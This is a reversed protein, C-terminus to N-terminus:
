LPGPSPATAPQTAAEAIRALAADLLQRAETDDSKLALASRFHEAAQASRGQNMLYMGFVKHAQEVNPRIAPPMKQSIKLVHAIHDIAEARRNTRLLVLALNDHGTAYDPFLQIATRFSDEAGGVDGRAFQGSGLNNYGVFSRPNVAIARAFLTIDDRWHAAQRFSIVGLTIFTVSCAVAMAPTPYRVVLWALAIAPGLMSIYLYHDAVTSFYQFQFPVLGLVPLVGAVFVLGAAVLQPARKRSILLLMAIGVPVVWTFWLWGDSVIQPPRHGYDVGLNVPLLLKYLYFALSNTAIFPRIWEAVTPIGITIQSAKTWIAAPIMLLFWPALAILSRRLTRQLGFVDLSVAVLPVVIATPKSLMAALFAVIGIVYHVARWTGASPKDPDTARAFLLYQWVAVFSLLGCLVDKMGSAWGVPEVQVPHLGWLLAGAAAAWEHNPFLLRLIAFVVLAALIHFLVNAGHFIYPNLLIGFEDPSELFAMKALVAWVTYTVPIYLGAPAKQGVATWYWGMREFSPPNFHPNRAITHPDDWGTFEHFALRGFSAAIAVVLILIIM